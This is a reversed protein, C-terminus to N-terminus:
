KNKLETITEISLGTGNAVQEITLGMKLFNKATEIKAMNFGCAEGRSFGRKEGIAIGEKRADFEALAWSMYDGRFNEFTKIKEVTQDIKQTLDDTAQKTKIYCLLSKKALNKEDEFAGANVFVKTSGDDLKLDKKELCINQFTYIPLGVNFFDNESIFIVLSDKLEGYEQGKSLQDMDIMSQYYRSRQPLDDYIKNQMEVDFIKDSGEVYVDLRIGKTMYGLDFTKESELYKIEKIKIDLLTELISKCIDPNKMTASFMFDDTFKLQEIPKIKLM